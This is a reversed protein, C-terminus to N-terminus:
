SHFYVKEATNLFFCTGNYKRHQYLRILIKQMRIDLRHYCTQKPWPLGNLYEQQKEDLVQLLEKLLPKEMLGFSCSLYADAGDDAICNAKLFATLDGGPNFSTEKWCIRNDKDSSLSIKRFSIRGYKDYEEVFETREHSIGSGPEELRIAGTDSLYEWVTKQVKSYSVPFNLQKKIQAVTYGLDTLHRIAGGAAAEFTFGSLANKFYDQESM